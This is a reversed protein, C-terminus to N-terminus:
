SEPLAAATPCGERLHVTVNERSATAEAQIQLEDGRPAILLGRVAGAHELAARMLKDILRTPPARTNVASSETILAKLSRNAIFHPLQGESNESLSLARPACIIMKGSMVVQIQNSTAM